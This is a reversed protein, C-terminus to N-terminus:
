VHARGIEGLVQTKDDRWSRHLRKKKSDYLHSQIFIAAQKAADLYSDNELIQYGRALASIMLGNWSTIIKDDLHPRSREKRVNFLIKKGKDLRQKVEKLPRNFKKATEDLTHARWLINDGEFENFPDYKVNGKPSLGYRYAIFEGM